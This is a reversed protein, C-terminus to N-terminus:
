GVVGAAWVVEGIIEADSGDVDCIGESGIEPNDNSQVTVSVWKDKQEDTDKLKVRLVEIRKIWVTDGNKVAFATKRRGSTSGKDVLVISGCPYTPEMKNDFVQVLLANKPDVNLRRLWHISFAFESIEEISADNVNRIIPLNIFDSKSFDITRKKLQADAEPELLESVSVGTFHAFKILNDLKPESRGNFYHSVQGDSVELIKAIASTSIGASTAAGRM